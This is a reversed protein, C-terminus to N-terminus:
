IIDAFLKESSRFLRLGITFLLIASIASIALVQYDIATSGSIVRRASEIVGAIPNVAMILHNSLGLTSLPYIVPTLFILTQIFFPLIFRIDRYKVNFSAGILGLGTAGLSAIILGLPIIIFSLLSPIYGFYLAFLIVLIFSIGFDVLGTSVASLPLILRPFYIKKIIGENDVLSNAARSLIGSFFGWYVLGVLVFLSYPLGDSPIKVFKGFFNTFIFMSAIPQLLVWGIGLVTQKYRVKIDRWAFIYFLERYRWLEKVNLFVKTKIPEIKVEYNDVEKM